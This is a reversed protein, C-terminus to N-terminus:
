YFTKSNIIYINNNIKSHHNQQLLYIISKDTIKCVIPELYFYQIHPQSLHSLQSTQKSHTGYKQSLQFVDFPM